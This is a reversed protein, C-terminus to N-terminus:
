AMLETPRFYFKEEMETKTMPNLWHGRQYEVRVTQTSGSKLVIELECMSTETRRRDAEAWRIVQVRGVLDLLRPDHLFEDDYYHEGITGYALLV